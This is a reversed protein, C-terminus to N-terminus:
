ARARLIQAAAEGTIDGQEGFASRRSAFREGIKRAADEADIGFDRLRTPMALSHFFAETRHIASKADGVDWIRRGYQSLKASKAVLKYTWLGPMVVALSEAHDIGYFATLEHGIMHTAWDGPVGCSLLNNLAITASWMFDARSAYDRPSELTRPAVEVLTQLVSEALRDQLLAAAPLTMYQECVHVFADVLGNRVQKAPLSFTTEPDLVSFAPYVHNSAFHLKETSSKRSIVANGNSESGTAPLTLVAGLPLAGAVNSGSTRLIEWPDAGPFAAAAAVYKAADLVSGGGVALIFKIGRDKVLALARLCTEHLPNPEIGSFEVIQHRTLAARVQDYVGNKKISGGGWVLLVPRDAPVRSSIEAIMGKGFLIETPNRYSFNQMTSTM